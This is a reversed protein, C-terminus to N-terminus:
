AARKNGDKVQMLSGNLSGNLSGSVLAAEQSPLEDVTTVPKSLEGVMSDLNEKTLAGQVPSNLWNFHEM